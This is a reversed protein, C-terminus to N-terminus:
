GTVHMVILAGAVLAWGAMWAGYHRGDKGAEPMGIRILLAGAVLLAFFAVIRIM